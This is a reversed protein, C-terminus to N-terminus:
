NAAALCIERQWQFAAGPLEPINFVATATRKKTQEGDKADRELSFKTAVLTWHRGQLDALWHGIKPQRIWGPFGHFKAFDTAVLLDYRDIEPGTLAAEAAHFHRTEFLEVALLLVIGEDNQRDRLVFLPGFQILIGFVFRHIKRRNDLLVTRQGFLNFISFRGVVTKIPSAALNAL